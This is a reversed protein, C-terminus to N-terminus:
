SCTKGTVGKQRESLHVYNRFQKELLGYIRKVKQKERLQIGYDTHKPRGQGHQGPSLEQAGRFMQGFLVSRGEPVTKDDRPSLIRLSIRSLTGLWDGKLGEHITYNYEEERPRGVDNHPIPTM